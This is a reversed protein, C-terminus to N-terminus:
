ASEFGAGAVVRQCRVRTAPGSQRGMLERQARLMEQAAEDGWRM